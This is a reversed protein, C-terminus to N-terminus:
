DFIPLRFYAKRIDGRVVLKSKPTRAASALRNPPSIIM